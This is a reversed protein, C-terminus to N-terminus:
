SVELSALEMEFGQRVEVRTQGCRPCAYFLDEPKFEYNCESCFCVVPLYEVELRSGEALTRQTVVDFAFELAEPVVGSLAGIKLRLVHIRQAGVRRAHECALEIASQM